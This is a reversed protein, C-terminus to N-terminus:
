PYAEELQRSGETSLQSLERKVPDGPTIRIQGAPASESLVQPMASGTNRGVSFNRATAFAV